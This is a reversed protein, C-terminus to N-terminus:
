RRINAPADRFLPRAPLPAPGRVVRRQTSRWFAYAANGALIAVLVYYLGRTMMYVTFSIGGVFLGFWIQDNFPVPSTPPDTVMFLAFFVAVQLFPPRFIEQVTAPDGIFSTLAFAGCYVGAFTLAAPLKNARDAVIYGGILVVVM